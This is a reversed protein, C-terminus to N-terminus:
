GGYFLTELKNIACEISKDSFSAKKLKDKWEKNTSILNKISDVSIEINDDELDCIAMDVTALLELEDVGTYHFTDFLWRSDDQKDWKKIYDLAKAMNKGKAFITGKGGSQTIIYGNNKAIPEGGKYRIEDAYPGAAKKKFAVTSEEQKRRLLYLLKQVKKRGLPYKDSYFSNVIAAIMVADDFHQNHGKARFLVINSKKTTEILRIRGTLLEQMMGQKIHKAKNLKATLAEIEVDMDSLVAAIATQESLQPLTLEINEIQPVTLQPVGTSEKPFEVCQNIYYTVFRSCINSKKPSLVLLRVIAYFPKDRYTAIGIDGRGTITISDGNYKPTLTYGYLGNNNISNSFIEIKYKSTKDYSFNEIDVDGGAYLNFLEVITKIECEGTFGPLRRKGTLLEQMTGQKIAKKKAILKGLSAIYGDMDSLVEAIAHQEPLPPLLIEFTNLLRTNLSAMTQGVAINRIESKVSESKFYYGLYKTDLDETISRIRLLRGSFLWGSEHMSVYANRDVSGVRSFIIDGEQLIYASLRQKDADSVLPLNKRTIAYEGLHEVTIIPTGSKVYDGAHLASGFPGTKVDAIEELKKKVWGEPIAGHESM